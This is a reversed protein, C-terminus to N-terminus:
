IEFIGDAYPALRGEANVFGTYNRGGHKDNYLFPLQGPIMDKNTRLSFDNVLLVAAERDPGNPAHFHTYRDLFNGRSIELCIGIWVRVPGAGTHVDMYNVWVGGVASGTTRHMMGSVAMDAPPTRIDGMMRGTMLATDHRLFSHVYPPNNSYQVYDGIFYLSNDKKAEQYITDVGSVVQKDFVRCDNQCVAIVSNIFVRKGYLNEERLIGFCVVVNLHQQALFQQLVACLDATERETFFLVDQKVFAEEPYTYIQLVESSGENRGIAQLIQQSVEQTDRYYGGAKEAIHIIKM